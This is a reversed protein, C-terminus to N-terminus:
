TMTCRGWGTRNSCVSHHPYPAPCCHTSGPGYCLGGMPVCSQPLRAPESSQSTSPVASETHGPVLLRDRMLWDIDGKAREQAPFEQPTEAGASVQPEIPTTSQESLAEVGPFARPTSSDICSEGCSTVSIQASAPLSLTVGAFVGLLIWTWTSTTSKMQKRRYIGRM